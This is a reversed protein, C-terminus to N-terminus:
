KTSITKKTAKTKGAATITEASTEITEETSESSSTQETFNNMISLTWEFILSFNNSLGEPELPGWDDGTENTFLYYAYANQENGDIANNSYLGVAHIKSGFLLAYPIRFHYTVEYYNQTEDNLKSDAKILSITPTTDFPIYPSIASLRPNTQQDDLSIDFATNWNFNNLPAAEDILTFLKIKTPRNTNTETGILANCLFKFLLPLGHNKFQKTEILKNGRMVKVVIRGQYGIKQSSAVKVKSPSEKTITTETSVKKSKTKRKKTTM